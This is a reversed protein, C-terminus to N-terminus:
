GIIIALETWVDYTRCEHQGPLTVDEINFGQTSKMISGSQLDLRANARTRLGVLPKAIFLIQGSNRTIKNWESCTMIETLGNPTQIVPITFEKKVNDTKTVMFGTFKNWANNLKMFAAMATNDMVMTTVSGRPLMGSNQVQLIMDLIL